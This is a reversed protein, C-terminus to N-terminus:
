LTENLFLKLLYTIKLSQNRTYMAITKESRWGATTLIEPIPIAAESPKSMSVGRTSHAKFEGTNYNVGAQKM